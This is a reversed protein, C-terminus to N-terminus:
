ERANFASAGENTGHVKPVNPERATSAIFHYGFKFKSRNRRFICAGVLGRFCRYTNQKVNTPRDHNEGENM